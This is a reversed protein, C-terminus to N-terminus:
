KAAWQSEVASHRRKVSEGCENRQREVANHRRKVSEM